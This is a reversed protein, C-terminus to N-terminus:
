KKVANGKDKISMFPRGNGTFYRSFMEYYELRLVQIGVVMGELVMVLINGIISVIIFRAGGTGALVSVAMMMGVHVIAFAGIRLFSITNSFYSLLVEFLEFFQQVYFMGSKPIKKGEMLMSLPECFYILLISIVMLAIMIGKPLKIIGTLASVGFLIVSVYFVMGAIGNHSFFLNGMEKKKYLNIINLIMGIVIIVAGMSMTGILLTSINSMPTLVGHIIEENGFVSGYLCGFVIGSLGVIGVINALQWRTKKYVIFGLLALVASQGVDGFMMGFFLIFTFALLPTPDIEDYGPYGYMKVFMEFPRFVINNKLKTPPKVTSDLNEPKETYFLIVGKENKLDRELDKADKKSMWGVLYFFEKSHAAKERVNTFDQRKQAAAYINQLEDEYDKIIDRAKQSVSDVRKTLDNIKNTLEKVSQEPTGSIDKPIEIREFYLSAFIEDVKERESEPVFYFGWISKEDEHTKVFVIDLDSLYTNLMKFGTRPIHGFRYKVFRFNNLKGLDCGVNQIKSLNNIDAKMKLIEDNLQSREDSSQKLESNVKDLFADMEELNKSSHANINEVPTIKALKLINAAKAVVSEYRVGDTFPQLKEKDGLVNLVNELHIDRNYIYRSVIDEFEEIKGAITVSVLRTIAM